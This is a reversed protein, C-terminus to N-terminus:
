STTKTQADLQEVSALHSLARGLMTLGDGDEWEVNLISAKKDDLRFYAGTAPAMDGTNVKAFGGAQFAEDIRSKIAAIAVPAAEFVITGASLRVDSLARGIACLGGVDEWYVILSDSSESQLRYSPGFEGPKRDVKTGESPSVYWKGAHESQLAFRSTQMQTKIGVALDRVAKPPAEFTIKM